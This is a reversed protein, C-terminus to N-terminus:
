DEEELEGLHRGGGGGGGLQRVGPSATRGETRGPETSSEPDPPVQTPLSANCLLFTLDAVWINGSTPTGPTVEGCLTRCPSTSREREQGLSSAAVVCINDGSM